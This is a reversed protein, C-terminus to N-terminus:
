EPLTVTGRFVHTAGGTLTVEEAGDETLVFGIELVDGGTCTIKVPSSARDKKGAILGCAVMGTGCAPTEAEVGREYTRVRIHNPELPSFFNANTGAPAFTDHYRIAAGVRQLDLEEANPVEVVVHPVGTNVAHWTISEGDIDLTQDFM